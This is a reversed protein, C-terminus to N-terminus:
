IEDKQKGPYFLSFILNEIEEQLSGETLKKGNVM